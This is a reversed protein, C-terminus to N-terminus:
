FLNDEMMKKKIEKVSSTNILKELNEDKEIREFIEKVIKENEETKKIKPHFKFYDQKIEEHKEYKKYQDIERIDMIQIKKYKAIIRKNTDFIYNAAMRYIYSSPNRTLTDVITYIKLHLESFLDDLNKLVTRKSACFRIIKDCSNYFETYDGTEKYFKLAEEVRL